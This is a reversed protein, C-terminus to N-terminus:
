YYVLNFEEMTIATDARINILLTSTNGGKIRNRQNNYYLVGAFTIFGGVSPIEIFESLYIEIKCKAKKSFEITDSQTIQSVNIEFNNLVKKTKLNLSSISDRYNKALSHFTVFYCGEDNGLESKKMMVIKQIVEMSMDSSSQEKNEYNDSREDCSILGIIIILSLLIKM